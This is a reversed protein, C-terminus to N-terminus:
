VATMRRGRTAKKGSENWSTFPTPCVARLEDAIRLPMSIRKQTHTRHSRAIRTISSPDTVVSSSGREHAENASSFSRANSGSNARWVSDIASANCRKRGSMRCIVPGLRTPCQPPKNQAYAQAAAPQRTACWHAHTHPVDIAPHAARPRRPLHLTRRQRNRRPKVPLRLHQVRGVLLKTRQQPPSGLPGHWRISRPTSVFSNVGARRVRTAAADSGNTSPKTPRSETSFFTASSGTIRRASSAAPSRALNTMTPCPLSSAASRRSNGPATNARTHQATLFQGRRIRVHIQQHKRRVGIREAVHHQFRQRAAHRGNHRGIAPRPKNHPRSVGTLRLGTDHRRIRREGPRNRSHELSAPRSLRHPCIRPPIRFAARPICHEIPHVRRIRRRPLDVGGGYKPGLTKLPNSNLGFSTGWVKNPHSSFTRRSKNQAELIHNPQPSYALKLENAILSNLTNPPQCAFKSTNKASLIKDPSPQLDLSSLVGGKRYPRFSPAGPETKSRTALHKM